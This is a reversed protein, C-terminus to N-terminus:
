GNTVSRVKHSNFVRDNRLSYQDTQPCFIENMFSPNLGHKTKFMAIM